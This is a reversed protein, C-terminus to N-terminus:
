EREDRAKRTMLDRVGQRMDKGRYLGLYIETVIPTDVGHRQALQYASDTTRVGEAVVMGLQGFRGVGQM